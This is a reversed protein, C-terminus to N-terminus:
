RMMVRARWRLRFCGAHLRSVASILLITRPTAIPAEFAERFPRDAAPSLPMTASLLYDHPSTLTADILRFYEARARM